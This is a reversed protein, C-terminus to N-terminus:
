SKINDHRSLSHKWIIMKNRTKEHQTNENPHWTSTKVLTVVASCNAKCGDPLQKYVFDLDVLNRSKFPRQLQIRIIWMLVTLSQSM